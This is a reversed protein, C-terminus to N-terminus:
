FLYVRNLFNFEEKKIIDDYDTFNNIELNETLKPIYNSCYKTPFQNQISYMDEFNAKVNEQESDNFLTFDLFYNEIKNKEFDEENKNLQSQKLLSFM